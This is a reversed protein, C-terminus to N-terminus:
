MNVRVVGASVVTGEVIRKSRPNRVRIRDGSTGDMLAKGKVQVRISGAESVLMVDQGRKVVIPSEVVAASLVTDSALRRRVVKGLAQTPDALYGGRLSTIDRRALRLDGATLREGRSLPRTTTLVERYVRIKVPVYLSWPRPGDCRIGVTTNGVTRGGPPLYARLAQPCAALRLRRDLAGVEVEGESQYIEHNKSAMFDHAVQRISAHSQWSEQSQASSSLLAIAVIAVRLTRPDM